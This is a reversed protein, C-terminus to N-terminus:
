DDAKWNCAMCVKCYVHVAKRKCKPCVGADEGGAQDEPSCLNTKREKVLRAYEDARGGADRWCKECSAM